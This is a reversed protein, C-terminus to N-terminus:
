QVVVRGLRLRLTDRASSEARVIEESSHVAGAVEEMSNPNHGVIYFKRPM